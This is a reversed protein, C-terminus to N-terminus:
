STSITSSGCPIRRRACPSWCRVTGRRIVLRPPLRSAITQETPRILPLSGKEFSYQELVVTCVLGLRSGGPVSRECLVFGNEVAPVLLGKALYDAMAAHIAPIREEGHKLDYEPLILQLASPADGATEYAKQWYEPESTYQDCAICAWTEPNVSPAPLLIEAPRIGIREFAM